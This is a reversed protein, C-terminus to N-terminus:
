APQRFLFFLYARAPAPSGKRRAPRFTWQKAAALAADTFGPSGGLVRANQIAGEGDLQLEVMVVADNMATPPYPAIAVATPIPVAAEPDPDPLQPATPAAFELMAPRFIGAVFVRSPVPRGNEGAARFRWRPLPVRMLETFPPVDQLVRADVAAGRADVAVDLMVIGAARVGYPLPDVEFSQLAAPQFAGALLTLCLGIM